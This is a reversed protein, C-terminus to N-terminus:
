AAHHIGGVARSKKRPPTSSRLSGEAQELGKKATDSGGRSKEELGMPSGGTPCNGRGPEEQAFRYSKSPKGTFHEWAPLRYVSYDNVSAAGMLTVSVPAAKKELLGGFLL